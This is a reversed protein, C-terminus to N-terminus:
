KNRLSAAMTPLLSTPMIGRQLHALTNGILGYVQAKLSSIAAATATPLRLHDM